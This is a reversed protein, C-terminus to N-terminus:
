FRVTKKKIYIQKQYLMEELHKRREQESSLNEQLCAIQDNKEKLDYQLGEIQLDLQNIPEENSQVKIAFKKNDKMWEDLEVKMNEFECQWSTLRQVNTESDSKLQEIESMKM